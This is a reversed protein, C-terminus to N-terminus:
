ASDPIHQHRPPHPRSETTAARPTPDATTSGASDMLDLPDMPDLPDMLDMLDMPDMLGDWGLAARRGSVMEGELL